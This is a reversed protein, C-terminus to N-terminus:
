RRLGVLGSHIDIRRGAVLEFHQDFLKHVLGVVDDLSDLLHHPVSSAGFLTVESDVMDSRKSRDKGRTTRVLLRSTNRVDPLHCVVGLIHM